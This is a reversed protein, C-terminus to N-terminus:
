LAEEFHTISQDWEGERRAILALAYPVESSGPLLNGVRRFTAKALAFDRLVRYQYYGLALQTEPSNPELRQANELASKVADRGTRSTDGEGYDRFASVRSLHAWASTFNPDLQVAKEFFGAAKEVLDLQNFSSLARAEFIRGRLYAEYA